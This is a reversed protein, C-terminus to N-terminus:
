GDYPSSQSDSADCFTRQGFLFVHRQFHDSNRLDYFICLSDISVAIFALVKYGTKEPLQMESNKSLISTLSGIAKLNM